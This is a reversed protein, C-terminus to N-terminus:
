MDLIHYMVMVYSDLFMCFKALVSRQCFSSTANKNAGDVGAYSCDTLHAIVSQSLTNSLNCASTRLDDVRFTVSAPEDM